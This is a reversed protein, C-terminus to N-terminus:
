NESNEFIIRKYEEVAAKLGVFIARGILAHGINLEELHPLGVIPPLNRVNLGHGAHVNLGEEHAIIAAQSLRAYEDECGPKGWAEAYAGTHLEVCDAGTRASARVQEEDPDIFLSVRIGAAKLAGTAKKVSEFLGAVDLGGETTVEERKEPVMCVAEPRVVKAIAVMEDTVAMELNVPVQSAALVKTVDEDQIHRRDERLHITIQDAGGLEALVVAWVPDPENIMRAQRVTAVHDINVGLKIM